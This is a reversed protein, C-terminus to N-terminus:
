GDMRDRNGSLLPIIVFRSVVYILTAVWLVWWFTTLMGSYPLLFEQSPTLTAPHSGQEGRLVIYTTTANKM